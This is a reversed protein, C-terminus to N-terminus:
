RFEMEREKIVPVTRQSNLIWPTCLGRKYFRFATQKGAGKRRGGQFLLHWILVTLM